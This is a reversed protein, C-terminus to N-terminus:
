PKEFGKFEPYFFDRPETVEKFKFCVQCVGDSYTSVSFSKGKSAKKGCDMCVQTPYPRPKKTVKGDGEGQCFLCM